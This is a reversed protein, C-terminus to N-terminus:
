QRAAGVTAAVVAATFEELDGLRHSVIAVLIEVDIETYRHVAVNRFGQVARMRGELGRGVVDDRAVISMAHGAGRPLEWGNAAILHHALDVLDVTRGTARV